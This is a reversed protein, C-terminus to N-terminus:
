IKNSNFIDSVDKGAIGAIVVRCQDFFTEAFESPYVYVMYSEIGSKNIRPLLEIKKKSESESDEDFEASKLLPDFFMEPSSVPADHKLRLNYDPSFKVPSGPLNAKPHFRFYFLFHEKYYFHMNVATGMHFGYGNLKEIDKLFKYADEFYYKLSEVNDKYKDTLDNSWMM